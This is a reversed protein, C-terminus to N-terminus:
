VHDLHGAKAQAFDILRDRIRNAGWIGDFGPHSMGRTLALWYARAFQRRRKGWLSVIYDAAAIDIDSLPM